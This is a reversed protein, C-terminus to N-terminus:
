EEWQAFIFAYSSYVIKNDVKVDYKINAYDGSAIGKTITITGDTGLTLWSPKDKPEELEFVVTFKDKTLEKHGDYLEVHLVDTGSSPQFYYFIGYTNWGETDFIGAWYAHEAVEISYNITGKNGDKDEGEITITYKNYPTDNAVKILFVGTEYAYKDDITIYNSNCKAKLTNEKFWNQETVYHNEDIYGGDIALWGTMGRTYYYDSNYYDIILTMSKNSCSTAIIPTAVVATLTSLSSILKIKNM